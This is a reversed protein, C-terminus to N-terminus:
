CNNKNKYTLKYKKIYVRGLVNWRSSYAFDYLRRSMKTRLLNMAGSFVMVIPLSLPCDFTSLQVSFLALRPFSTAKVLSRWKAQSCHREFPRKRETTQESRTHPFFSFLVPFLRGVSDFPHVIGFSLAKGIETGFWYKNRSWIIRSCIPVFFISKRKRERKVVLILSIVNNYYHM